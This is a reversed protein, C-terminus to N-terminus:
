KDTLAYLEAKPWEPNEGRSSIALYCTQSSTIKGEVPKIDFDNGVVQEKLRNFRIEPKMTAHFHIM